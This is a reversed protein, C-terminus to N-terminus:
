ENGKTKHTQQTPKVIPKTSLEIYDKIGQAITTMREVTDSAAKMFDEPKPAKQNTINDITSNLASRATSNAWIVRFTQEQLQLCAQTVHQVGKMVGILDQVRPM